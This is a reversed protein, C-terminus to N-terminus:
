KGYTPRGYGVVFKADRVQRRCSDGTTNGEITVFKKGSVREVLGVHDINNISRGGKWAYFVIDGAQMGATGNHWRGKQQFKKAHAVTYAYGIGKGGFIAALNGSHGAWYTIAMDCWAGNGIRAINKNYWDTIKNHDSGPPHEGLGLTKKAENLMGRVTGVPRAPRTPKGPTPTPAAQTTLPPEDAEQTDFIAPAQSIEFVGKQVPLRNPWQEEATSGAAFASDAEGEDDAAYATDSDGDAVSEDSAAYATIDEGEDGAAAYATDSEGNGTNQNDAAYATDDDGQDDAAYTTDEGGQDDVAYATDDGGQDDASYATDDAGQDDAAYATDDADQDDAAYATDDAGQDDAAFAAASDDEADEPALGTEEEAPAEPVAFAELEDEALQPIPGGRRLAGPKVGGPQKGTRAEDIALDIDVGLSYHGSSAKRVKVRMGDFSALQSTTAHGPRPGPVGPKHAGPRGPKTGAQGPKKGPHSGPQGPKLMGPQGPKMGPQGPKMGPQGPKTGPQGPKMTGPHQGPRLAGPRQGPKM